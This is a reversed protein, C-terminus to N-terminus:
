MKHDRIQMRKIREKLKVETFLPGHTANHDTSVKMVGGSSLNWPKVLEDLDPFVICDLRETVGNLRKLANTTNVIFAYALQILLMTRTPNWNAIVRLPKLGREKSATSLPVLKFYSVGFDSETIMSCGELEDFPSYAANQDMSMWAKFGGARVRFGHKISNYECRNNEDTMEKALRSLCEGHSAAFRRPNKAHLELSCLEGITSAIGSWSVELDPLRTFISKDEESIGQILDILHSTQCKAIWAYGCYPAQVLVGILSFLTELAHHLTAQMAIAAHQFKADEAQGHAELCYKFYEADIGNLFELNRTELDPDVVLWPKKNVCFIEGEWKQPRDM